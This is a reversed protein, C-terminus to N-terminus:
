RPAEAGQKIEWQRLVLTLQRYHEDTCSDRWITVRDGSELTITTKFPLTSLDVQKIQTKQADTRVVGERHVYWHGLSAPVIFEPLSYLKVVMLLLYISLALPIDSLTVAWTM